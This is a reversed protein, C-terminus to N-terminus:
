KVAVRNLDSYRIEFSSVFEFNLNEFKWVFNPASDFIYKYM